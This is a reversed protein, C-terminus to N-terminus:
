VVSLEITSDYPILVTGVHRGSSDKILFRKPPADARINGLTTLLHSNGSHKDQFIAVDNLFRIVPFNTVPIRPIVSTNMM